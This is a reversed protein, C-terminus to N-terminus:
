ATPPDIDDLRLQGPSPRLRGNHHVPRGVDRDVAEIEDIRVRRDRISRDCPEIVVERAGARQVWAVYLGSRSVLVLDGDRIEAPEAV